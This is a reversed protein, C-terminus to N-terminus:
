GELVEKVVTALQKLSFPKPLFGFKADAPLNKAFADEAYGSVFIFKIDPQLKRLEGLLTPGDMEPMVVDSVVIDVKGELERFIELAEVGSSAEHVTYGRSTLARMGGMRVADEDEVLLVTASGSLDRAADSEVKGPRADDGGNSTAAGGAQKGGSLETVPGVEAAHRPLFIHFVTGKGVESDCYIFGGTQKIIGYVMSLGLGTGKGVEKTTFFPEFIKEMIEPTMGTGTDEVEVTVYDGPTLERRPLSRSEEVGVNRTRITLEGGNPMADRANVTLNVIVQEFQGIDVRVLWLDRGHDIALKIDNGVLRALLMRLDALVDTLNLVEPRLTQKRSFALLQRVLSAARNANQKINMIDPFSPDSPRHNTLLLDSAMIIATLVNNFDHAIGGALQGVAQMKQTQAMSIELAKQETTEVAYVIAAEDAGEGGTGDAIPNVYFRVHREDNNPLVTDIPTINAQHQRAKELAAAFSSRDREHIVTDLRVRRDIADRDVVSSFLSLFPANTRIIRGAKDVGAIAMPTSNFFRTFRVESARLEASADEGLTRNLVITRSPGQAGDRSAIVRHMFRVPLAEGNVKALDLDIVTDRTTGPEARVSRVLAIGDGAIIEALSADGPSFSALDIGLWEALTANLYTIRGEPDAAFFGAPAHDLHDIAKQLDLFFREQEARERSVDAFQWAALPQRQSPAKFTRARLRYWCAGPEAGPRISQSLRFEGDGDLGDKIGSALRYVIASAEPIDSLLAEVTKIDAATTAGTMDAYAQNAYVVQGKLDTLLLGQAMSDAFAKAIEDNTSRPAIQVFGIATAFLYGVGVMALVGLMGLLFPDGLQERFLAFLVSAGSLVIFFVILRAIVGPRLDKDVVPAPYFDNRTQKMRGVNAAM